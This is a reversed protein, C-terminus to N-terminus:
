DQLRKSIRFCEINFHDCMQRVVNVGYHIQVMLTVATLLRLLLLETSATVGFTISAIVVLSVPLLQWNLLECRTNSMQSVILRCCANSLVTGTMVCFLRPDLYFINNPSYGIWLWCLIMFLTFSALPRNAEYFSRMKGTKASYSKYINYLTMPLCVGLSGIYLMYKFGVGSPINLIPINFKWFTYGYFYTLIFSILCMIESFDYGWPLFLIGTNYKEWHSSLFNFEVVCLCAYFELMTISYDERGFVHFFTCPIFITAWSDLGHDFMEGLPGSTNTRRAQKGDIGDLTYALFHSIACTMWVWSPIPPYEPHLSNSAYFDYDYYSLIVFNFITFLFGTFTLLNPALWRPCLKVCNNWFPHMIYISLVNTDVANYKYNEFGKLHDDSLYKHKM